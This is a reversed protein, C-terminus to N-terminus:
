VDLRYYNMEFTVRPSKREMKMVDRQIHGEETSIGRTLLQNSQFLVM